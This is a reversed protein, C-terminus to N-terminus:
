HLQYGNHVFWGLIDSLSIAALASAIADTLLKECRVKFKRLCAKLKSWMLEIPNLDPSYPPLYRIQAGASEVLEVIGSVKHASLNDLIVIDGAKLTPLLFQRIYERFMDGNLSDEFVCPVITGDLRMSSLITTRHFRTDPVADTVRNSKIARGYIRTMGTNVSSEDLFILKAADVKRQFEKWDRREQKVDDRNREIAHVTKKVACDM